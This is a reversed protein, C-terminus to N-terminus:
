QPINDLKEMDWLKQPCVISCIACGICRSSNVSYSVARDTTRRLIAGQPCGTLCRKCDTCLDERVHVPKQFRDDGQPVITIVRLDDKPMNGFVGDSLWETKHFSALDHESDKKHNGSIPVIKQWHNWFSLEKKLKPQDIADLFSDLGKDLWEKDKETLPSLCVDPALNRVPGRVYVCGGVMGACSREGIVSPLIQSDHGCIVAKGGSMFEFSFSGCSKLVWLEPEDFDPDRKMLSGSRTGARGGVYLKGSAACHAATDGTDGKIAITGGSNLWGADAPTSGPIVIHTNPLCMAGVRQGPNYITFKIPKGEGNWLPGGIDHQGSAQIVFETEGNAVADAIACLLDKTSM